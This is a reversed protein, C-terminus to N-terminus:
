QNIANIATIRNNTILVETQFIKEENDSDLPDYYWSETNIGRNYSSKIEEPDGWAILLLEEPMGPSITEKKIDAALESGYVTAIRNYVPESVEQFHAEAEEVEELAKEIELKHEDGLENQTLMGVVLYIVSVLLLIICAIVM